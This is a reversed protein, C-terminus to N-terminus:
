IVNVLYGEVWLNMNEFDKLYNLYNKKFLFEIFYSWDKFVSVSYKM